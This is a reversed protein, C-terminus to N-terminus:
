ILRVEVDLSKLVEAVGDFKNNQELMVAMKKLGDVYNQHFRESQENNLLGFFLIYERHLRGL